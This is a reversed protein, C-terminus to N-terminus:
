RADNKRMQAEGQAELQRALAWACHERVLADDDADIRARLADVIATSPPANGLAIALNRSWTYTTNADDMAKIALRTQITRLSLASANAREFLPTGARYRALAEQDRRGRSLDLTAQASVMFAGWQQKFSKMAALADPTVLVRDLFAVRDEIKRAQEAAAKEQAAM